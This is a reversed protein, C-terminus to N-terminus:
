FYCIAEQTVFSYRTVNSTGGFFYNSYKLANSKEHGEDSKRKNEVYIRKM